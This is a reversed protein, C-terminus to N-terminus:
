GRPLRRRAVRPAAALRIPELEEGTTADFVAITDSSFGTVYIRQGDPSRVANFPDLVASGIWAPRDVDLDYAILYNPDFDVVFVRREDPSLELDLAHGVSLHAKKVVALTGTDVITIMNTTARQLVLMRTGDRTIRVQTPLGDMALFTSLTRTATDIVAVRRSPSDSVFLTREDPSLALGRPGHLPNAAFPIRAAVQRRALDVAVVETSAGVLYATAGDRTVVLRFADQDFYDPYSPYVTSLDVSALIALSAADLTLLEQECFAYIRSGDASVRVGRPQLALSARVSRTAVDVALLRTRHHRAGNAEYEVAESVVYLAAGDPSIDLATPMVTAPPRLLISGVRTNDVTDVIHVEAPNAGNANGDTVFARTGGPDMAIALPEIHVPITAVLVGSTVDIAGVRTDFTTRWSGPLTVFARAGDPRLAVGGCTSPLEVTRTHLTPLDILSATRALFDCTCLTTGDRSVAIATVGEGAAVTATVALTAPDVIAVRSPSQCPWPPDVGGANCGQTVYLRSGDPALALQSVGELPAFAELADTALDFRVIGARSGAFDAAVVYLKRGDPSAALSELPALPEPVPISREVERRATDIVVIRSMKEPQLCIEPNYDCDLARPIYAHRGDASFAISVPRPKRGELPIAAVVPFSPQDLAVVYIFRGADNCYVYLEKGDPTVAM